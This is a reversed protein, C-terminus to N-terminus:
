TIPEALGADKQEEALMTNFAALAVEVMQDTPQRTTLNQLALNPAALAKGILTRSIKSTFRIYEYALMALLPLLLVRSSDAVGPAATRHDLVSHSSFVVLTLIFATGCRPHQM